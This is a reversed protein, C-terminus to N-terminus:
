VDDVPDNRRVVAGDVDLRGLILPGGKRDTQRLSKMGVPRCLVCCGLGRKEPKASDGPAFLEDTNAIPLRGGQDDVEFTVRATTAFIPLWM